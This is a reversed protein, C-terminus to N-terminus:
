RSGAPVARGPTPASASAPMPAHPLHPCRLRWGRRRRWDGRAPRTADPGAGRDHRVRDARQRQSGRGTSRAGTLGLRSRSLCSSARARPLGARAAWGGRGGDGHDAAARGLHREGADAHLAAVVGAYPVPVEVVAKATEVEAIVQDVTVRDGPTVRWAIVEAEALGEGLDPLLFDAM